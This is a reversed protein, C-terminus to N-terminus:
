LMEFCEFRWNIGIGCIDYLLKTLCFYLVVIMESCDLIQGEWQRPLKHAGGPPMEVTPDTRNEEAKVKILRKM